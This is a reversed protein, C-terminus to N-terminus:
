MLTDEAAVAVATIASLEVVVLEIECNRLSLVPVSTPVKGTTRSSTSDLSDLESSRFSTSSKTKSAAGRKRRAHPM